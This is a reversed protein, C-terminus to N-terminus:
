LYVLVIDLVIVNFLGALALYDLVGAIWGLGQV